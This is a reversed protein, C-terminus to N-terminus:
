YFYEGRLVSNGPTVSFCIEGEVRSGCEQKVNLVSFLDKETEPTTFLM